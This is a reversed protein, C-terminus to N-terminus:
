AFHCSTKRQWRDVRSHREWQHDETYPRGPSPLEVCQLVYIDARHVERPQVSRRAPQDAPVERNRALPWRVALFTLLILEMMMVKYM